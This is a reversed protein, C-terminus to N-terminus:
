GKLIDDLQNVTLDRVSDVKFLKQQARDFAMQLSNNTLNAAQDKLAQVISWVYTAESITVKTELFLKMIDQQIPTFQAVYEEHSLQKASPKHRAIIQLVEEAIPVCKEDRADQAKEQREEELKDITKTM